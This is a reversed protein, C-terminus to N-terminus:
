YGYGATNANTNVNYNVNTNANYNTNYGGNYYPTPYYGNYYNRLGYNPGIVVTRYNYGSRMYVYYCNNYFGYNYANWGPYWSNARSYATYPNGWAYRNQGYYRYNNYGGYSPYSNYYPTNGYFYGM